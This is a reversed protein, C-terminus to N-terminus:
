ILEGLVKSQERYFETFEEVSKEEVFHAFELVSFTQVNVLLMFITVSQQANIIALNRIMEKSLLRYFQLWLIKGEELSLDKILGLIYIKLHIVKSQSSCKCCQSTM